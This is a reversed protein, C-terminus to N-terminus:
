QSNQFREAWLPALIERIRDRDMPAKPFFGHTRDLYTALDSASDNASRVLACVRREMEPPLATLIDKLIRSGSMIVVEQGKEGYDLNEDVICLIKSDPKTKLLNMVIKEMEFVDSPKEGIVIKQEEKVGVLGLIRSMLKRQINSDDIAIAFTEPPVEFDITKIKDEPVVPETPCRFSFLTLDDEFKIKCSGGMARACKQAIWAGDGSSIFRDKIRFDKHLRSGQEFVADSAADGLAKLKDHGEGPSNIVQLEFEMTKSHFSVLTAVTCGHKGYKCANSVANRHIYRLLQPDLRLCPLDHQTTSIPFREAHQCAGRLLTVVDVSEFRPHYVENIVDRAMAEALVTDLVEHLNNDLEGLRRWCNSLNEATGGSTTLALDADSELAKAKQIEDLANRLNDILEIGVLLGNKVEHRVFRTQSQSEKQRKLAEAEAKREAEFRRFRESVDRVVAIMGNEAHPLVKMECNCKTGDEREFDCPLLPSTEKSNGKSFGWADHLLRQAIEVKFTTPELQDDISAEQFTDFNLDMSDIHYAQRITGLDLTMKNDPQFYEEFSESRRELELVLAKQLKGGNRSHDHQGTLLTSFGPSFLTLCKLEHKISLIILDSSSSWLASMLRRLEALQRQALGESQFVAKHTDVIHRMYLSKAMVDFAADVYMALSYPRFPHGVPLMVHVYANMTFALVLVTWIIACLLMLEYSYRHRQYREMESFSSGRPTAKYVQYKYHLRPFIPLFTTVAMTMSMCWTLIGPCFPFVLGFVCSVSQCLSYLIAMRMAEKSRPVDIADCLFTMLGACPIWECWRVLFVRSHIIPDVMVITPAFALIGNTIMSIIMVVMGAHVIGSVKGMEHRWFVFSAIVMFFSMAAIGFAIGAVTREGEPLYEWNEVPTIHYVFYLLLVFCMASMNAAVPFLKNVRYTGVMPENVTDVAVLQNAKRTSRM